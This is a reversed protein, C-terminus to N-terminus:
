YLKLHGTVLDIVEEKDPGIACATPTQVGNFETKGNDIIMHTELDMDRARQYVSYLEAEDPVQCVIKTFTGFVWERQISSLELVNGFMGDEPYYFPVHGDRLRALRKTLWAISAHAAQACEKGRRMNLDKRIVIVQKVM